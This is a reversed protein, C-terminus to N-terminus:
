PVAPTIAAAAAAAAAATTTTTTSSHPSPPVAHVVFKLKRSGAPGFLNLNFTGQSNVFSFDGLAKQYEFDQLTELAITAASRKLASWEAPLDKLLSEIKGVHLKGGSGEVEFFGKLQEVSPGNAQVQLSLNLAGTMTFNEPSIVKTLRSLDVKRGEIWASWPSKSRFSFNFGGSVYGRYSKAGFKGSM